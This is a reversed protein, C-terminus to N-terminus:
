PIQGEFFDEISIDSRPPHLTLAGYGSAFYYTGLILILSFIVGWLKPHSKILRGEATMQKLDLHHGVDRFFWGVAEVKQGILKKVKGLAFMLNGLFSFASEYNLYILGKSDQLMMDESLKAGATGRGIVTGELQYVHGRVPSAYLDSLMDFTTSKTPQTEPYKYFLRLLYAVGLSAPIWIFLLPNKYVGATVLVILPLIWPLFHIFVGIAFGRYLRKRDVPISSIPSTDISIKKGLKQSMENLKLIRKGTLPHTSQFQLIKAWPSILDYAIVQAIAGWNQGTSQFATGLNKAAQSDFPGLPRTANLLRQQRPDDPKAVIGYAIKVLARALGDPNETEHASFEDAGYERSRSLFLLLYLGLFYFAYALLGIWALAGRDRGGGGERKSRGGMLLQSFEYLIQVGTAAITMIIFDRRRIHGLEHGIVAEIEDQDLYTFLGESFCLRANFAGSGFAFATPNDDEILRLKPIKIRYKECLRKIFDSLPKSKQELEEINLRKTKYLWRFMLDMFFPSILWSLFNVFITAAIVFSMDAYGTLNAALFVIVFIFGFIVSLTITSALGLM